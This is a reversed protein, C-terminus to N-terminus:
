KINNQELVVMPCFIYYEPESADSASQAYLNISFKNFANVSGYMNTVLTTKNLRSGSNAPVSLEFTDIVSGHAASGHAASGHTMQEELDRCLNISVHSGTTEPIRIIRIEVTTNANISDKFWISSIFQLHLKNMFTSLLFKHQSVVWKNLKIAFLFNSNNYSYFCQESVTPRRENM